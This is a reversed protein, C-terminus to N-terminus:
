GAAVTFHLVRTLSHKGSVSASVLLAYSGPKLKKHRTIRGEFRLKDSGARAPLALTGVTVTRICHRMHENKKTAAVCRGNVKRGGVRETFRFTVVAAENLSFYFTTGVPPKKPKKTSSIAALAKGERWTKASERVGGLTPTPALGGDSFLKSHGATLSPTTFPRVTVTATAVNTTGNRSSARYTFSETGNRTSTASATYVAQGTAANLALGGHLGTVIAYTLPAGALDTCSLQIVLPKLFTTSGQVPGCTPPPAFEYAGIDTAGLLERPNGDLDTTGNLPSNVGKGLTASSSSSEHFNSGSENVFVPASTQNTASGPATVSITGENGSNEENVTAYDSHDAAIIATPTGGSETSASIDFGAGHAISNTLDITRTAAGAAHLALAEGGSGAAILTDNRLSATATKSGALTAAIGSTGSSSCVSDTLSESPACAVASAASVQVIVHDISSGSSGEAFIGYNGVADQVEVDSVSSGEGELTIGQVAETIIVPRSQGAQGHVTVGPGIKLPEPVPTSGGYEGPEITVDTGKRAKEIARRLACPKALTCASGGGGTSAFRETEAASASPAALLALVGVLATALSAYRRFASVM